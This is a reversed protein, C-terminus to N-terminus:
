PLEIKGINQQHEMKKDTTIVVEYEAKEARELLEGNKLEDWGEDRATRVNHELLARKLGRPTCHDLLIKLGM